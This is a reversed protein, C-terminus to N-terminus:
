ESSWLTILVVILMAQRGPYFAPPLPPFPHHAHTPPLFPSRPRIVQHRRRFESAKGIARLLPPQFIAQPQLRRVPRGEVGARPVMGPLRDGLPHRTGGDAQAPQQHGDRAQEQDPQHPSSRSRICRPRPPAPGAARGPAARRRVAGAAVTRAPPPASPRGPYRSAPKRDSGGQRGDQGASGCRCGPPAPLTSNM